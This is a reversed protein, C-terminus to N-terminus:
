GLRSSSDPRSISANARGSRSVIKEDGLACVSFRYFCINARM